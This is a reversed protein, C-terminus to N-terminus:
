KEEKAKKGTKKDLKSKVKVALRGDYYGCNACAHHPLVPKRCHSCVALKLNKLALHARGRRTRNRAKKKGPVTM